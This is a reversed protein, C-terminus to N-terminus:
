KTTNTPVRYSVKFGRTMQKRTIRNLQAAQSLIVLSLRFYAKLCQPIHRSANLYTGQPMTTHAKLCQPIHRSANHYTGQPVTNHAKLCQPIHRSAPYNESIESKRARQISSLFESQLTTVTFCWHNGKMCSKKMRIM